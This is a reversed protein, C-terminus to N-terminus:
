EGFSAFYSPKVGSYSEVHINDSNNKSNIHSSNITSEFPASSIGTLQSSIPTALRKVRELEQSHTYRLQHVESEHAIREHRLQEELLEIRQQQEKILVKLNQINRGQVQGAAISIDHISSNSSNNLNLDQSYSTNFVSSITNRDFLSKVPYAEAGKEALTEGDSGIKKFLDRWFTSEHPGLLNKHASVSILHSPFPPLSGEPPPQHFPEGLQKSIIM